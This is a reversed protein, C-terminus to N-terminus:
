QGTYNGVVDGAALVRGKMANLVSTRDATAPDINLKTSLAFVQFHYPHTQGAPPKPGLYGAKGSVNKGQMAGNPLTTEAPMEGPLIRVTSPINYVIWHVIPEARNVGSDEAVVVYSQTGVPGRTWALAPSMNEGNQTYRDGMPGGSSFAPSTVNLRAGQRATAINKALVPPGSQGAANEGQANASVAFLTVVTLATAVKFGIKKM